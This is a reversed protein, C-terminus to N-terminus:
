GEDYYAEFVLKGHRAILVSTIQQFQGAKIAASMADLKSASLGEAAPTATPWDAAQAGLPTLVLAAAFAFAKM